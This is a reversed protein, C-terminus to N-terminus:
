PPLHNKYYNRKTLKTLEIKRYESYIEVLIKISSITFYLSVYNKL